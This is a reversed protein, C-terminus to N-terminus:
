NRECIKGYNSYAAEDVDISFTSLPNSGAELFKNEVIHSYDETNFDKPPKVIGHDAEGEETKVEIRGKGLDGDPVITPPTSKTAGANSPPTAQSDEAPPVQELAVDETRHTGSNSKGADNCAAFILVLILCLSALLKKLLKM